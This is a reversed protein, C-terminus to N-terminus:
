KGKVRNLLSTIKGPPIMGEDVLAQIATEVPGKPVIAQKTPDHNKLVTELVPRLNDPLRAGVEIDDGAISIPQGGLGAAELETWITPGFRAM